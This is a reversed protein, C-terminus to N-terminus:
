FHFTCSSDHDILDFSDKLICQELKRGANKLLLVLYTDM